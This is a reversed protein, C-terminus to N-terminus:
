GPTDISTPGNDFDCYVVISHGWFLEGDDHWFDFRGDSSVGIDTLRMRNLFDERSLEVEDEEELWTRGHLMEVAYDNIRKSWYREEDFLKRAFSLSESCVSEGSGEITLRVSTGNWTTVGDFQDLRRDLTLTGFRDDNFTVPEQLKTAIVLLESDDVPGVVEVLQAQPTGLASERVLRIKVRLIQYPEILNMTSKLDDHTMRQRISLEVDQIGDGDPRWAVFSFTLTWERSQGGAGGGPGSPSVVGTVVVEPSSAFQEWLTEMRLEADHFFDDSDTM